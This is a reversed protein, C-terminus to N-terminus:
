NLSADYHEDRISKGLVVDGQAQIVPGQVNDAQIVEARPSIVSIELEIPKPHLKSTDIIQQEAPPISPWEVKPREERLIDLDLVITVSPSFGRKNRVVSRDWIKQFPV